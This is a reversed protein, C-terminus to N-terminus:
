NSVIKNRGSEKAKYLLKDAKKYVDEIDIVENAYNSYLGMSATMYVSVKSNKHEIKLEEINKLIKNAFEIAKDKEKSKYLLGFEEGGLRFCYDDSRHATKKLCNAVKILVNDGKQHGYSDNYQKFFDIDLILFSIFQNERKSSNLFNPFFDNFHRRNYINTLGDTISIEEIIKKDSIDQWVCVYGIKNNHEDFKPSITTYVWYDSGDKARNKIEGEWIKNTKITEWLKEFIKKNMDPHRVINLNKGILEERSHKSIKCFASSVETIIGALDTSSSIINEDILTNFSQLRKEIKKRKSIEKNLKLNANIFIFLIIGFVFITAVVWKIILEYDAKREVKLSVWKNFIQQKQEFSISDIAKNLINNLIPEDNRSGIGLSWVEEFKSSVILQGMYKNQIEYATTTLTDIFGFLEGNKVKELGIEINDVEIININPYKEKLIDIYAYGKVIGLKKELVDLINSIYFETNKTIIVLPTEIYPKTFNFHKLREKNEMVLSLIDCKRELGLSYSETWTETPIFRIPIGVKQQFLNFFDASIGTHKSDINKEYPMWNPDICYTLEKKNKLYALEKESLELNNKYEEFIFNKLDLDNKFLGYDKYLGSIYQIRGKDISGLPIKKLDIMEEIIDAEYRLHEISKKTNYKKYILEIIEEKNNLAYEWGKLTAKKFKEVREPYNTAEFESTFLMDGYLDFGYHMPNIINIDVSKEKFYFPENSLYAPMTNIEKNLLKLYDDPERKRNLNPKIGLKKFMGLIAFGDTDNEYFIMDKNNLEYPSTIESSSLSILVSPSHQFIPSIIVIPENKAKYLLLISDAVGYQAENNIVQEVNNQEINREKIEVDLGLEEYFGKEKAAYYGAFQFQHLWKLQLIVKEQSFSYTFFLMILLIKIKFVRKIINLM